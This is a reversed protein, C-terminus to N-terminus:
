SGLPTRKPEGPKRPYAHPTPRQKTLVVIRGTPTRDTAEHRAHLAHLAPKASALEADAREGKVLLAVGGVRLLPVCLEALVAIPGVARALVTDYRERHEADHGLTEARDAHVDVNRLGMRDSAIAIFRAKKATSEIATFSVRPMCVALPLAPLGAGSGVDAAHLRTSDDREAQASDLAAVYPLLTLADLIHRRWAEGADRIATLNVRENAALLLALFFGLKEVDGEDFVVGIRECEGVFWEPPGLPGAPDIGDFLDGRMASPADDHMM